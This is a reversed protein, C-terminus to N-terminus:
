GFKLAFYKNRYLKITRFELENSNQIKFLYNIVIWYIEQSLYLITVLTISNYTLTIKLFHIHLIRISLNWLYMYFEAFFRIPHFHDSFVYRKASTSVSNSTTAM